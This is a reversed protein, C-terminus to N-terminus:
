ALKHSWGLKSRCSEYFNQDLPHLLQLRQSKKAIRIVDGEALVMGSQGDCSLEVLQQHRAPKLIIKIENSGPIVLPRSSLAHPFMPVLVLADLQPHMIPGGASLAYATSGTPTAVILGDSRQTYVFQGEVYLDFEIMQVAHSPHLVIDNLADGSCVPKEDRTVWCDLLFREEIEYHGSFVQDLQQEFCQPLVDALFGLRGRNVGLMPTGHRCLARGAGLMCGDGGVVIVLDVMQGLKRLDFIQLDSRGIASATRQELVIHRNKSQLYNILQHITEAVQDGDLRGM